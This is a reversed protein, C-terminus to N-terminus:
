AADRQAVLSSMGAALTTAVVREHHFATDGYSHQFLKSRRLFRHLGLEWTFGMGGHVQIAENCVFRAVEGCYAKAMSAARPADAHEESVAWFAYYAASRACEVSVAMDACRHKIAQFSGIPKGFQERTKAYDVSAMLMRNAIGCLMGAHVTAALDLLRDVDNASGLAADPAVEVSRFTARALAATPDISDHAEITLGPANRDVAWLRVGAGDRATVILVDADNLGAVLLKEGDLRGAKVVTRIGGPAYDEDQEITAIAIRCEGRAIVPLYKAKQDNSGIRQILEAAILTSAIIPPALGAGIAEISLALDCITLGVGGQDEPVLLAFLGLGSVTDWAEAHGQPELDPSMLAGIDALAAAVTEGLERQQEDFAFNM